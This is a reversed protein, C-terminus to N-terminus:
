AAETKQNDKYLASMRARKALNNLYVEDDITGESVLRWRQVPSKQGPRYLRGEAQQNAVSDETQSAIIECRCVDKLWDVGTSLSQLQAVLIKWESGFGNEIKLRKAATTKMTWAVAKSGLAAEAMRAWKSSHTWVLVSEGEPLDAIIDKVADLKAQAAKEDYSIDLDEFVYSVKFKEEGSGSVKEELIELDFVNPNERYRELGDATLWAVKAKSTEEAKLTGLAVQRLRIRKEIPLPTAIPMDGLWALCQKEFEEYQAQQEPTMQVPVAREVIPPMQGYVEETHYRVVAPIDEWVSGPRKEAGVKTTTQREGGSYYSSEVVHFHEYIWDWRNRYRQPWLLNLVAWLGEPRNGGPTYSLAQRRDAKIMKLVYHPVGNENAARHVEDLVVLDWTGTRTWPPVFGEAIAKKVAAVTVPPKSRTASQGKAAARRIKEPVAGHMAEWGIIYVGPRKRLMLAWTEPDKRHTGAIHVLNKAELSPFQEVFTNRWQHLITSPAIVLIRPPRGLNLARSAEVTMLTKGAGLGSANLGGEALIEIAEAQYPRLTKM